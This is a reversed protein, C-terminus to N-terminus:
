PSCATSSRGRRTASSPSTRSTSNPRNSSASGSRARSRRCRGASRGRAARDRFRGLMADVDLQDGESDAMANFSRRARWSCVLGGPSITACSDGRRLRAGARTRSWIARGPAARDRVRARRRVRALGSRTALLHELAERGTVGAVLADRPEYAAVERPLADVEHEAVYPPNSVVLRLRAACARRAACRVVLGSAVRVRTAACGAINARAVDLADDSVDTAWVEVDPLEADLALAIAGSGTGLDAVADRPETTPCPRAARGIPAAWPTGSRRARGGRGARDRAAPDARPSRGDSRARPVVVRRARVAAARRAVRREVM